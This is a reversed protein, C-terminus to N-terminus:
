LAAERVPLGTVGADFTFVDGAQPQAALADDDLGQRASTAYGTRGDPGGIAVKTINAVPFRVEHTLTGDPLYRRAAWGGWFGVWVGGEADCTAGDPHGLAPDVDLFRRPEGLRGDDGIPYADITRGLTDVAYLTAGDPSIAPGNTIVVPAAGSDAVAGRDHVYLRGTEAAEGNDMSGFWIRGSPDVAADNLRNGPLDTEVAHHSVFSGDAPSFLHLGSALGALFRGGPVPLVWGVHDPADWADLRGTAPDLRHVRPGKIDVFWLAGQAGNGVWVPGEGLTAGVRALSTAEIITVAM